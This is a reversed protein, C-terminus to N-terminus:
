LSFGVNNEAVILIRGAVRLGNQHSDGCTSDAVGKPTASIIKGGEKIFENVLEFNGAEDIPKCVEKIIFKKQM